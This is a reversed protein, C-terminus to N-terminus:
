IQTCRQPFKRATLEHRWSKKCAWSGAQGRQWSNVWHQIIYKHTTHSCQPWPPHDRSHHPSRNDSIPTVAVSMRSLLIALPTRNTCVSETAHNNTPLSVELYWSEVLHKGEQAIRDTRKSKPIDVFNLSSRKKLEDTKANNRLTLQNLVLTEPCGIPGMKLLWSVL